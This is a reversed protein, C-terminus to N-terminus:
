TLASRYARAADVFARLIALHAEEDIMREPHWQVGVFFREGSREMGEVTGDSAYASVTMGPAPVKVCQHHFSNTEIETKGLIGHLRTGVIVTTEHRVGSHGDIHQHLSGGSFVNLTQIGRCIGLVPIETKVAAAFLAAEFADRAEAIAGCRPDIDEGYHRPHLDVGGSFLIGDLRACLADLVAPQTVQDLVVPIGGAAIIAESYSTRIWVREGETDYQPTIGIIPQYNM